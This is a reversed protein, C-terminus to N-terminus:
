HAIIDGRDQKVFGQRHNVRLELPLQATLEFLDMLAEIDGHDVDGMVLKLRRSESVFNRHHVVTLHHLEARRTFQEFFRRM